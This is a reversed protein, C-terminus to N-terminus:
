STMLSLTNVAWIQLAADYTANSYHLGDHSCMPGCGTHMCMLGEPLSGRIQVVGDILDSMGKWAFTCTTM